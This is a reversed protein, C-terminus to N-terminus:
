QNNIEAYDKSIPISQGSTCNGHLQLDVNKQKM